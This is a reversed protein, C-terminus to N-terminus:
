GVLRRVGELYAQEDPMRGSRQAEWIGAGLVDMMRHEAEHEGFKACLRRHIDAIGSPRDTVMQERIALHLALHLFPNTQGQEPTWDRERVADRDGMMAQYEPHDLLLAVLQRQMPDLAQGAEHKAWADLFVDRMTGRDQSFM